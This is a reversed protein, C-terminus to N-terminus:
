STVYQITYSQFQTAPDPKKERLVFWYFAVSGLGLLLLVDLLGFEFGFLILFAEATAATAAAEGELVTSEESSM